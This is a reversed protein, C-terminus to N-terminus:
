PNRARDGQRWSAPSRVKPSPSQASAVSNRSPLYCSRREFVCPRTSNIATRSPSPEAGNTTSAVHMEIRSVPRIRQWSPPPMEFCSSGPPPNSFDFEESCRDWLDAAKTKSKDLAGSFVRFLLPRTCREVLEERRDNLRALLNGIGEPWHELGTLQSPSGPPDASLRKFLDEIGILSDHDISVRIRADLQEELFNAVKDRYSSDPYILFCLTFSRGGKLLRQLRFFVGFHEEVKRAGIGAHM